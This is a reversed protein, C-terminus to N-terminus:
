ALGQEAAIREIAAIASDQWRPMRFGFDATFKSCDLLSNAPRRARTPWEIAKIPTVAATPLGLRACQAMILEAFEFWTAAGSGALHYIQGSATGGDKRWGRIMTLLGDALDLASTPNGHQDCVVSVQDRSQALTMMTKLFNRGFPSYVWATRVIVHDPNANRVREEGALKTRGYVGIPSTPADEAYPCPSAGDFVYDTSLHIIPIGMTRAAEALAAPAAENLLAAREPEDEAQDVATYAAANLILDPAARAVNGAIDGTIELDLEPRGLPILTLDPDGSALEALSRVLQGERGTVLIRM